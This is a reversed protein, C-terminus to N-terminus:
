GPPSAPPGPLLEAYGSMFNPFVLGYGSDRLLTNRCRKSTRGTVPGTQLTLPDRGIRRALWSQVDWMTAPQNDTALYVPHLTEGCVRRGILHALFGILDRRHIRNTYLRHEPGCARGQRVQDLLRTRGPGYIGSARINVFPLGSVAVIQEAALTHRGAFMVPETPSNEDVWTDDDQHYVSTSSVFYLCGTRPGLATLLNRLGTIYAATYAEDTHAAPTLTVVVHDFRHAALRSLSDPQSFDGTLEDFGTPLRGARRRLGCARAGQALLLQGLGAGIDGCGALLVSQGTLDNGSM